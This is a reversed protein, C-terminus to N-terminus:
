WGMYVVGGAIRESRAADLSADKQAEEYMPNLLIRILLIRCM